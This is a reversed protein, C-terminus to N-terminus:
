EREIARGGVGGCAEDAKALRRKPSRAVPPLELDHEVAPLMRVPEQRSDVDLREFEELAEDPNFNLGLAIVIRDPNSSLDVVLPLMQTLQPELTSLTGLIFSSSPRRQGECSVWVAIKTLWSRNDRYYRLWTAKLSQRFHEVNM